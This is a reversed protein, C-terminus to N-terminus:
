WKHGGFARGHLHAVNRASMARNLGMLMWRNEHYEDHTMNQMRSIMIAAGIAAAKRKKDERTM